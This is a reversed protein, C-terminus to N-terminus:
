KAVEFILQEEEPPKSGLRIKQLDDSKLWDFRFGQWVSKYTIWFKITNEVDCNNEICDKVFADVVIKSVPAKKEKRFQIWTQWTEDSVNEPKKIEEKREKKISRINKITAIPKDNTQSENTMENAIQTDNRKDNSQYLDYNTISIISGESSTQSTIENTMKLKNLTVRIQAITLGTEKALKELGTPFSGRKILLGKLKIDQSNAKLLCHIFVIRVNMDNYWEWDLLSRYLKIWGNNM